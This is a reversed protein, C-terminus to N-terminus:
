RRWLANPITDHDRTVGPPSQEVNVFLCLVRDGPVCARYMGPEVKIADMGELGALHDRAQSHVYTSAAAYSAALDRDDRRLQARHLLGAVVFVALLAALLVTGAYDTAIARPLDPRRRRLALGALPALAAVVILAAAASLLVSPVAGRDLAVAGAVVVVFFAPWM